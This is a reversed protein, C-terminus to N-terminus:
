QNKGKLNQISSLEIIKTGSICWKSLRKGGFDLIKSQIAINSACHANLM